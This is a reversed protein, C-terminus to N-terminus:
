DMLKSIEKCTNLNQKTIATEEDFMKHLTSLAVDKVEIIKNLYNIEYEQQRMRLGNQPDMSLSAAMNTSIASTMINIYKGFVGYTRNKQM